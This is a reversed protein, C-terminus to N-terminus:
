SWTTSLSPWYHDVFWDGSRLCRILVEYEDPIASQPAIYAYPRTNNYTANLHFEFLASVVNQRAALLAYDVALQRDVTTSLFSAFTVLQGISSQLSILEPQTLGQGRYVIFDEEDPNIHQRHISLLESYLDNIFFRYPHILDPDGTRLARNVLRYV